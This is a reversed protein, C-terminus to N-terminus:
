LGGLLNKYKECVSRSSLTSDDVDNLVCPWAKAFSLFVKLYILKAHETHDLDVEIMVQPTGGLVDQWGQLDEADYFDKLADKSHLALWIESNGDSVSGRFPKGSSVFGGNALIIEKFDETSLKESSIIMASLSM